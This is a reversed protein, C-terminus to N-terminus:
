YSATPLYFSSIFLPFREFKNEFFRLLSIEIPKNKPFIVDHYTWDSELGLEDRVKVAITYSGIRDWSHNINIIEGSSFPGEWKATPDNKSWEIYYYLNNENPDTASFTYNYAIKAQGSSPGNIEPTSPPENNYGYTAFCADVAPEWIQFRSPTWRIYLSGPYVEERSSHWIYYNVNKDGGLTTCGLYYQNGPLVSIDNFDFEVWDSASEQIESYPIAIRVFEHHLLTAKDIITVIVDSTINGKREILLQVKSLSNFTPIFAQYWGLWESCVCLRGGSNDQIQDLADKDSEIIYQENV